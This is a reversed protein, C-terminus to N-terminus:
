IKPRWGQIFQTIKTVHLRSLHFDHSLIDETLQVLLRGDIRERQFVSVAAESLGIFRLCASVEELSLASLDAPPRWTPDTPAAVGEIGGGEAGRSSDPNDAPEPSPCPSQRNFPNLAGFPAFRSQPPPPRLRPGTTYSDVWPEAWTAQATQPIATTDAPTASVPDPNTNPAPCDAWSCPYCYLSTDPSPSCSDQLGSSYFSLNPRPSTSTKPFRPPVPPSPAPSSISGLKSCRPPVPPAILYRCEERVADSKPPVPPPAAVTTVMTGLSGDLSSSSHFSILNPEKGLGEANQNTWLEEYPIEEGTRMEDETWEPTVYEREEGPGEGLQVGLSDRCRHSLSDSVGGGYGCMSLQQLAPALSDQATVCMRSRRPSVCEETMCELEPRTERVARSYADTDFAYRLLLSELAATHVSAEAVNFRPMCRLLLFHSPSVEQRRLVMCLVVTKSVINLLKYRHGERVAHRDYLNRPPRSPVSVNVPLRVREIISRVTHEGGLMGQELLSRTCFRGRCAFPLSVSQNTRHNMCVLCPTKSRPTKGLRRLLASLGTKEKTPTACLLEAKGMLSLEDGAQLTFSYPESDESFEGSVVKVSFTVTEMVFVRDPFVGAVEEVSSFYQVPDRIDRDEDLLKFKGQYQLPIDIKPGIVYHGEELSHATVTTWQRCSHLLVVDEESLGEVCEGHALRVLTPLRFKSVVADLPLALPSWSIESLSASLKEM